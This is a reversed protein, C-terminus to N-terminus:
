KYMIKKLFEDKRRTSVEISTGDTMVLFGGKGKNYTRIYNLNVLHSHHVRFFNYHELIKEFEKLTKAVVMKQKNTLYITTYNVDSECRIIDDSNLFELGNVTPIIIKKSQQQLAYLNQLLLQINGDANKQPNLIKKIAASLDDLDIPKLLYYVAWFKFAKVAYQEHATTFIIHISQYNIKNLLEFGTENQLQVDLFIVDVNNNAILEFGQENSNAYGILLITNSFHSILLNSLRDICHQEDDIIIAKLM